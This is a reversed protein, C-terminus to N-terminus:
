QLQEFDPEEDVDLFDIGVRVITWVNLNLSILHM